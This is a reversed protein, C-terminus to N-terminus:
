KKNNNNNNNNNNDNNNSWKNLFKAKQYNKNQMCFLITEIEAVNSLRLWHTVRSM